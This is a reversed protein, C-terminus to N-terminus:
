KVIMQLSFLSSSCLNSAGLASSEAQEQGRPFFCEKDLLDPTSYWDDSELAM